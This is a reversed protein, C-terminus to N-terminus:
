PLYRSSWVQLFMDSWNVSLDIKLLKGFTGFVMWTFRMDRFCKLNITAKSKGKPLRAKVLFSGFACLGAIVFALIRIAWPYGLNGFGAKLLFPFVVGGLGSGAMATGMAMGARVHFWHPVCAMGVTSVLAAGIGGLIGFCLFFHWYRTCEAVLFLSAVFIVSGAYALGKPGYRDFLPGIQVGLLLAVFVFVSSIWGVDRSSYDSLQHTQLYSQLVGVSNMLGYSAMLLFFSGLVVLWSSFGGDPFYTQEADSSQQSGRSVIDAPNHLRIPQEFINVPTSPRGNNELDTNISPAENGTTLLAFQHEETPIEVAM